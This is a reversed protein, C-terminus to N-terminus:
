TYIIRILFNAGIFENWTCESWKLDSYDLTDLQEILEILLLSNCSNYILYQMCSFLRDPGIDVNAWCLKRYTEYNSTKDLYYIYM